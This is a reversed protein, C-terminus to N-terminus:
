WLYRTLRPKPTPLHPREFESIGDRMMNDVEMGDRWVNAGNDGMYYRKEMIKKKKGAGIAPARVDQEESRPEDTSEVGEM